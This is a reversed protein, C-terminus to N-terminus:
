SDSFNIFHWSASISSKCPTIVLCSIILSTQRLKRDLCPKSSLANNYISYNQKVWVSKTSMSSFHQLQVKTLSSNWHLATEQTTESIVVRSQGFDWPWICNFASTYFLYKVEQFFLVYSILMSNTEWSGSYYWLSIKLVNNSPLM